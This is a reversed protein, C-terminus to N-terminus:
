QFYTDTRSTENKLEISGNQQLKQNWGFINLIVIVIFFHPSDLCPWTVTAILNKNNHRGECLNFM